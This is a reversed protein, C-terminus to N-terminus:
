TQSATMGECLRGLFGPRARRGTQATGTEDNVLNAVDEATSFLLRIGNPIHRLGFWGRTMGIALHRRAFFDGGASGRELLTLAEDRRQPWGPSNWYSSALHLMAPVFGREVGTRLVEQAKEYQRSEQYLHGLWILGYDSGAEYACLYWKEAQALDRTTGSGNEFMQGVTAMSWVSGREALALYQRFAEAPDTELLDHAQYISAPDTEREMIAVSNTQADLWAFHRKNLVAHTADCMKCLICKM